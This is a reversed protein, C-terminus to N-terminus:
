SKKEVVPTVMRPPFANMLRWIQYWIPVTELRIWVTSQTGVKLEEGKPWPEKPDETVRAYYFGKEYSIPEVKDVLGGFTGYKIQPWGSIQLAPWGYFMIRAPLGEKLLPMNFDSIKLLISKHTVQPAFHLIPDGKKILRNKDNQLIRVIYGDRQAYVKGSEYRKVNLSNRQIDQTISKLKANSSLRTNHLLKISNQMENLFKKKEQDLIKLNNEEIKIDVDVKELETKAKVYRNEVVEYSRKSEIGDKYLQQMRELNLHEIEYQKELSVKQLSLSKIKNDVKRIKKNYIDIGVELNNQLNQEKQRINKIQEEYDGYQKQSSEYISSLKKDYEKDLDVLTFLLTGKTVFQNEQVYVEDVIGDITALITYDRQMPDTAILTGEGKITQQWPLFLVAILLLFFLATTLRIKRIIPHLTVMKTAKYTHKPM